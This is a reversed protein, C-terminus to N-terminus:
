RPGSFFFRSVKIACKSMRVYADYAHSSFGRKSVLLNRNYQLTTPELHVQGATEM